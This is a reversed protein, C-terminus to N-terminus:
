VGREALVRQTLRSVTNDQAMADGEPLLGWEKFIVALRAMIVCFRFGAFVEYFGMHRLTVGTREEYRAVTAEASPFGPLRPVDCGESHHRDLFLSWALDQEPAGLCVMEWDLVALREGDEDYMVNGIRADGWCLVLHEDRPLHDAIWALAARAVPVAEDVEIAALWREYYALQQALGPPGLEPRALFDLGLAQWDLGHLEAMTDVAGWWVKERHEPSVDHLWGAVHYPPNDPPVRGKVEDMVFFPAGLVAADTEYWRVRPVPIASREGLARLVQYQVDFAPDPFLSYGTPAVRVVLAAERAAGGTVWAADVLLTENSFGTAGPGRLASLTVPGDAGLKGELWGALARRSEDADRQAPIPM